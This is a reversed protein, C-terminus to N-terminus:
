FNEAALWPRDTQLSAQAQILKAVVSRGYFLLAFAQRLPSRAGCVPAANRGCVTRAPNACGSRRLRSHSSAPLTKVIMLQNQKHALLWVLRWETSAAVRYSAAM